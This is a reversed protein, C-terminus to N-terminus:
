SCAGLPIGKVATGKQLRYSSSFMVRLTVVFNSTVRVRRNWQLAAPFVSTHTFFFVM